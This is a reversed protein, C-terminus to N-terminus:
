LELPQPPRHQRRPGPRRLGLCHGLPTSAVPLGEVEVSVGIVFGAFAPNAARIVGQPTV